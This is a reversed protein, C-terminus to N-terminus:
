QPQFFISAMEISSNVALEIHEKAEARLDQRDQLPVGWDPALLVALKYIIANYWEEPVDFTNASGTMYELPRMYVITITDSASITADPTPWLKIEGYNVFPQYTIQVPAGAASSIPLINYNFNPSIDLQVKTSGSGVRWAQVMQLPYPTNLTQGVGILYSSTNATMNFTYEKRQWLPMGLTRLEALLTNLFLAGKALDDASPTQGSALVGLKSIAATILEDRTLQYITVGSTAM